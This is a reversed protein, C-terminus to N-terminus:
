ERCVERLHLVIGSPDSCSPVRDLAINWEKHAATLEDEFGRGKLFLCHGGPLLHPYAWHLLQTLPALARATIVDAGLPPISEIRKNIITITTGTIRAAERLFACKRADSELLHVDPAGLIALVMGPFGAGSGMDVLRKATTPVLPFLQASDLVHRKWIHPITDPGVLNIRPQWKQLLTVYAILRDLTERSVSTADQFDEPTM